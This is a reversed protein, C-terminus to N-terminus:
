ELLPYASLEEYVAGDPHLTSGFLSFWQARFPAMALGAHGAVYRHFAADPETGGRFRALSVHPMFRRAPLKLGAQRAARGISKQLSALGDVQAVGAWLTRPTPKGFSGLGDIRVDFALCHLAALAQHLEELEDKTRDDLFLLTVHLIEEAVRRGMPLGAQVRVLAARVDGPLPLAVFARTLGM